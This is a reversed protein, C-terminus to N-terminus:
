TTTAKVGPAAPAGATLPISSRYTSNRQPLLYQTASLTLSTVRLPRPPSTALLWSLARPSPVARRKPPTMGPQRLPVVFDRVATACGPYGQSKIERWLQLGNRCGAEWRALLYEKYPERPGNVPSGRKRERFTAHGYTSGRACRYHLSPEM